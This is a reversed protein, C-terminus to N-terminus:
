ENQRFKMNPFQSRIKELDSKTIGVSLEEEVEVAQKMHRKRDPHVQHSKGDGEDQVKQEPQSNRSTRGPSRGRDRPREHVFKCTDGYSCSGRDFWNRCKIESQIGGQTHRFRCGDGYSCAGRSQWNFCIPGGAREGTHSSKQRKEGGKPAEHAFRCRSGYSCAGREEFSFCKQRERGSIEEHGRKRSAERDGRTNAVKMHLKEVRSELNGVSERIGGLAQHVIADAQDPFTVKKDRRTKAEKMEAKERLREMRLMADGIVEWGTTKDYTLNMRELFKANIKKM